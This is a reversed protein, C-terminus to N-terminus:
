RDRRGRGRAAALHLVDPPVGCAHLLDVAMKAIRPTQEAPKAVVSNGALLSASVQGMFIALPFNWPSICVFVGRGHLSLDNSEGTPGDQRM